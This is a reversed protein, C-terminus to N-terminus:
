HPLYVCKSTPQLEATVSYRQFVLFQIEVTPWFPSFPILNGERKFCGFFWVLYIFCHNKLINSISMSACFVFLHDKCNGQNVSKLSIGPQPAPLALGHKHLSASERLQPSPTSPGPLDLHNSNMLCLFLSSLFPASLFSWLSCSHM